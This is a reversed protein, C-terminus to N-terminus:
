KTTGLKSFFSQIANTIPTDPNAAVKAAVAARTTPIGSAASNIPAASQPNVPGAKIAAQLAAFFGGQGNKQQALIMVLIVLFLFAKSFPALVKVYGLSGVLGLAILWYIFNQNAPGTFDKKLQAGFAAQTDQAGSIIM